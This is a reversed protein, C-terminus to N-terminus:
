TGEPKPADKMKLDKPKKHGHEENRKIWEEETMCEIKEVVGLGATMNYISTWIMPTWKPIVAECEIKRAFPTVGQIWGQPPNIGMLSVNVLVTLFWSIM